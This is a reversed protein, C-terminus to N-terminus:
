RKKKWKIVKNLSGTKYGDADIAVYLFGLKKLKESITKRNELAKGIERDEVEVRAIDGHHRVRVQRLGLSKIYDEAKEVTSLKEHTITTGFPIRSALCPSSPKDWTSLGLDKSAKRIEKKTLNAELLPNRIKMERIAKMGPRYDKVDDFNVGLIINEFDNKEAFEKLKELLEKKCFYCRNVLNKTFDSNDMESTLIIKHKIGIEKAIKRADAIEKKTYTLSFSTVAIARNGLIDFAIKALFTSDVGGSFAVVVSGLNKLINKLDDIKKKTEM